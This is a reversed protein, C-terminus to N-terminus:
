YIKDLYSLLYRFTDGSFSNENIYGLKKELDDYHRLSCCLKDNELYLSTLEIEINEEHIYFYYDLTIKGGKNKVFDKIADVISTKIDDYQKILEKIKDM